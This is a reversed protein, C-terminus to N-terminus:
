LNKPQKRKRCQHIKIIYVYYIFLYILDIKIASNGFLRQVRGLVRRRNKDGTQQIEREALGRCHNHTRRVVCELVMERGNQYESDSKRETELMENEERSSFREFLCDAM